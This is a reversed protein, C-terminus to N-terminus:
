WLNLHRLRTLSAYNARSLLPIYGGFLRLRLSTLGGQLALSTAVGATWNAITLGLCRLRPLSSLLGAASRASLSDRIHLRTLGTLRQCQAAM